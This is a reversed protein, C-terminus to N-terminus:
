PRERVCQPVARLREALITERFSREAALEDPAVEPGHLLSYGLEGLWTLGADEVVSETFGSSM